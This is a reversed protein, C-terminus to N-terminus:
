PASDFIPVNLSASIASAFFFPQVTTLMFSSQAVMKGGVLCYSIERVVFLLGVGIFGFRIRIRSVRSALIRTKGVATRACAFFGFMRTMRPSSMPQYLGLM